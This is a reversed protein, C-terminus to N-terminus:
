HLTLDSSLEIFTLYEELIHGECRGESTFRGVRFRAMDHRTRPKGGVVDAGRCVRPVANGTRARLGTGASAGRVARAIAHNPPLSCGLIRRPVEVTYRQRATSGYRTSLLGGADRGGIEFDLASKDRELTDGSNWTGRGSHACSKASLVAQQSIPMPAGTRASTCTNM